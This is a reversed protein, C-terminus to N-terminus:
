ITAVHAEVDGKTSKEDSDRSAKEDADLDLIAVELM